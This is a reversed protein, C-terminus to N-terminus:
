AHRALGAAHWQGRRLISFALLGRPFRAQRRMSRTCWRMCSCRATGCELDLNGWTIRCVAQGPKVQSPHGALGRFQLSSRPRGGRQPSLDVAGIRFSRLKRHGPGPCDHHGVKSASLGTSSQTSDALRRRRAPPAFRM